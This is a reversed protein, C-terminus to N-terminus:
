ELRGPSFKNCGVGGAGTGTGTHKARLGYDSTDEELDYRSLNDMGDEHVKHVDCLGSRPPM